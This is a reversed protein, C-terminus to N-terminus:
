YVYTLRRLQMIGLFITVSGATSTMYIQQSVSVILRTASSQSPDSEDQLIYCYVNLGVNIKLKSSLVRQTRFEAYYQTSQSFFLFTM